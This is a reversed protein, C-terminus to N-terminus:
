PLDAMPFGEELIFGVSIALPRAGCMASDNVTGHGVRRSGPNQVRTM